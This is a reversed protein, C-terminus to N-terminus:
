FSIKMIRRRGQAVLPNKRYTSNTSDAVNGKQRSAQAESPRLPGCDWATATTEVIQVENTPPVGRYGRRM